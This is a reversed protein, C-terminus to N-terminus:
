DLPAKPTTRLKYFLVVTYKISNVCPVQDRDGIWGPCAFVGERSEQREKVMADVIREVEFGGGYCEPHICRIQGQFTGASAWMTFRGHSTEAGALDRSSVEYEVVADKLEPFAKSFPQNFARVGRQDPETM